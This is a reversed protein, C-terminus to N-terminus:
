SEWTVSGGGPGGLRNLDALMEEKTVEPKDLVAYNWLIGTSSRRPNLWKRPPAVCGYLRDKFLHECM